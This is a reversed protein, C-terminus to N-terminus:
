IQNCRLLTEGIEQTPSHLWDTSGPPQSTSCTSVLALRNFVNMEYDILEKNINETQQPCIHMEQPSQYKIETRHHFAFAVFIHSKKEISRSKSYKSPAM